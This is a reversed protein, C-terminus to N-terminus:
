AFQVCSPMSASVEAVQEGLGDDTIPKVVVNNSNQNAILAFKGNPSLAFNRPIKGGSSAFTVVSLTGGEAIDFIAISDHTRNSVYLRSGSIHIDAVTNGEVPEPLTSITQKHTFSTNEANYNYFTVTSDLENAVYYFENNPHFVTHRPGSGPPNAIRDHLTLTGNERDFAYVVVQDLGLDAVLAFGQDPTLITSHAHPGKQRDPNVGSTGEHQVLCTMPGLSGDEHIPYVSANGSSYNAALLWKGSEDIVLHCPASGGSSQNNIPKLEWPDRQLELSWVSGNNTEGTAFVWKGNPHVVIFSPNGIGTFGGVKNLAGTENNFLFGQISEQDAAAYGSVLVLSESVTNEKSSHAQPAM